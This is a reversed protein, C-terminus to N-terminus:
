KAPVTDAFARLCEPCIDQVAIHPVNWEANHGLSAKCFVNLMTLDAVPQSTILHHTGDWTCFDVRPATM